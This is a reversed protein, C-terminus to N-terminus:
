AGGHAKIKSALFTYGEKITGDMLYSFHGTNVNLAGNCVGDAKPCFVKTNEPPYNPNLSKNQANKTYGYLVAGAIRKKVDPSLKSVANFIVATGQSYGGTVIVTNPCKTSATTYHKTAEAIASSTTGAVSVNDMLGASYAPASVGQCAVDNSFLSKLGKCIGPGVSTAMGMNNTETSARAWIFTVKKCPGQLENSMSGQPAPAAAVAGVLAAVTATSLKMRINNHTFTTVTPGFLSLARIVAHFLTFSSKVSDL